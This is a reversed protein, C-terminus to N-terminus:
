VAAAHTTADALDAYSILDGVGIGTHIHRILFADILELAVGDAIVKTMGVVDSEGESVQAFM